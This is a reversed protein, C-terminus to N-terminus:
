IIRTSDQVNYNPNLALLSLPENDPGAGITIFYNGSSGGKFSPAKKWFEQNQPIIWISTHFYPYVVEHVM